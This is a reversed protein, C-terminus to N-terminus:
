NLNPADLRSPNIRLIRPNKVQLVFQPPAGNGPDKFPHAHIMEALHPCCLRTLRCGQEAHWCQPRGDPDNRQRQQTARVGFHHHGNKPSQTLDRPRVSCTRSTYGGTTCISELAQYTMGCVHMHVSGVEAEPPPDRGWGQEWGIKWKANPLRPTLRVREGKFSCRAKCTQLM